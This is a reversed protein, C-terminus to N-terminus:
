SRGLGGGGKVPVPIFKQVFKQVFLNKSGLLNTYEFVLIMVRRELTRQMNDSRRIHQWDDSRVILFPRLVYRVYHTVHFSM